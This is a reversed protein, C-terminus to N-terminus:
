FPFDLEEKKILHKQIIKNLTAIGNDIWEYSMYNDYHYYRFLRKNLDVLSIKLLPEYYILKKIDKTSIDTGYIEFHPYSSDYSRDASYLLITKYYKDVFPYEVYKKLANEILQVEEENIQLLMSKRCFIRGEYNEHAEYGDPIAAQVADVSSQSMTYLVNGQKNKHQHLYYVEGNKNKYSYKEPFIDKDM